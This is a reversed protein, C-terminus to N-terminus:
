RTWSNAPVNRFDRGRQTNAFPVHVQEKGLDPCSRRMENQVAPEIKGGFAQPAATVSTRDGLDRHVDSEVVQAMEAPNEALSETLGWAAVLGTEAVTGCLSQLPTREKTQARKCDWVFGGETQLLCRTFAAALRRLYIQAAQASRFTDRPATWRM